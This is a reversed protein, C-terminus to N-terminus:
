KASGKKPRKVAKKAKKSSGGNHALAAVLDKIQQDTHAQATALDALRKDTEAFHDHTETRFDRVFSEFLEHSAELHAMRADHRERSAALGALIEENKAQKDVQDGVLEFLRDLQKDHRELSRVNAALMRDIEAVDALHRAHAEELRAMNALHEAQRRDMAAQNEAVTQLTQTIEETTV